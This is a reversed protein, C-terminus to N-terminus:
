LVLMTRAGFGSLGIVFLSSQLGNDVPSMSPFHEDSDCCILDLLVNFVKKVM